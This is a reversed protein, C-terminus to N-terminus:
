EQPRTPQAPSAPLTGEAKDALASVKQMFPVEVGDGRQITGEFVYCPEIEAQSKGVDEAWFAARAKTIRVSKVGGGGPQRLMNWAGKRRLQAVADNGSRTTVERGQEVERWSKAFGIVEGGAGVIVTAKAGPGEVEKGGLRFRYNVHIEQAQTTSAGGAQNQRLLNVVETNGRQAEQPLLGNAQVFQAAQAGAQGANPLNKPGPAGLQANDGFMMAGTDGMIRLSKSGEDLTFVGGRDTPQGNMGFGRAIAAQRAAPLNPRISRFVRVKQEHNPVQAQLVFDPPGQAEGAPPWLLQVVVMGVVIGAM